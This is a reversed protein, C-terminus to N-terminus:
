FIMLTHFAVPPMSLYEQAHDEKLTGLGNQGHKKCGCCVYDGIEVAVDIDAGFGPISVEVEVEAIHEAFVFM